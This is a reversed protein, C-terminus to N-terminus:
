VPLGRSQPGIRRSHANADLTKRVSLLWAILGVAMRLVPGPRSLWADVQYSRHEGRLCWECFHECNNTLLHYRDEGVRSRARHVVQTGDFCPLDESRLWVSHGRTFQALSVEEVPGTSLGGTLGCYHVVRGGGAYIGHHTYGRRPTVIHAGLSPEQITALLRDRRSPGRCTPSQLGLTQVATEIYTGSMGSETTNGSPHGAGENTLGGSQRHLWGIATRVLVGQRM